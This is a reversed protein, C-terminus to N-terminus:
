DHSVPQTPTSVHKPTAKPDYHVFISLYIIRSLRMLYPMTLILIIGNVILWHIISNDKWSIGFFIWYWILNFVSLAVTLAYSVYGTGYWFGTELETKQGCVPCKDYMDLTHSLKYPNSTRFLFGKRCHPCKLRLTSKLYAAITQISM